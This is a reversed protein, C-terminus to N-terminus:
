RIVLSNRKRKTVFSSSRTSKALDLFQSEETKRLSSMRSAATASRTVIRPTSLEGFICGISPVRRKTTPRRRRRYNRLQKASESWKWAYYFDVIDKTDKRPLLDKQIKAFNKGHRVIGQIFLEIEESTWRAVLKRPLEKTLVTKLAVEPIYESDHLIDTIYQEAYGTCSNEMAERNSIGHKEQVFTLVSRAMFVYLPVWENVEERPSWIKEEPFDRYDVDLNIQGRCEPIDAIGKLYRENTIEPEYGMTCSLTVKGEAEHVGM